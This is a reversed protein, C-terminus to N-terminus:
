EPAAAGPRTRLLRRLVATLDQGEVWRPPRRALLAVSPPGVRAREAGRADGARAHM